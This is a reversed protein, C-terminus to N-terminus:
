HFQVALSGLIGWQGPTLVPISPPFPLLAYLPTIPIREKIIRSQYNEGHLTLWDPIGTLDYKALHCTTRCYCVSVLGLPLSRNNAAICNGLNGFWDALWSWPLLEWMAALLGWSNIGWALRLAWLLASYDDTPLSNVAGPSLSWRTTIWHKCTFMDHQNARVIAGNSHLWVDRTFTHTSADPLRFRRRISKGALLNALMNLRDRISGVLNLMDLLSGMLPKFGFRNALNANAAAKGIQGRGAQHMVEPMAKLLGPLDKSEGLFAPINVDPLSPNSRAAAESAAALLDPVAFKSRPDSIVPQYSVPMMDMVLDLVGGLVRIGNMQPYHYRCTDSKFSNDKGWGPVVDNTRKWVGQNSTGVTVTWSGDLNRRSMKGSVPSRLDQTRERLAM